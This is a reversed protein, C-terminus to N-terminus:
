DANADTQSGVSFYQMDDLRLATLKGGWVCGTDLPYVQRAASERPDLTLASWHGFLVPHGASRRQPAQYWPILGAPQTGPPGTERLALRGDSSCYRLRTFCNTIFRARELGALKSSWRNPKSGYMADLFEVCQDGRLIQEIEAACKRALELDWQPPMGAHVLTFGTSSDNVFLPQHRLWECIEGLDSAGLVADLTDTRRLRHQHGNAVALLHLDHNGLVITVTDGLPRLLRLVELSQPGRNVLDGACWLRDANSDFACVALLAELEQYCGQIDGVAYTAM